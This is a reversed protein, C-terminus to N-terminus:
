IRNFEGLARELFRHFVGVALHEESRSRWEWGHLVVTRRQVRALAVVHVDERTHKEM